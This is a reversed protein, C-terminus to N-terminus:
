WNNKAWQLWEVFKPCTKRDPNSPGGSFYWNNFEKNKQPLCRFPDCHGKYIVPEVGFLKRARLRGHGDHHDDAQGDRAPFICVHTPDECDEDSNCNEWQEDEQAATNSFAFLAALAVGFKLSAFMM